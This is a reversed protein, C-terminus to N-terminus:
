GWGAEVRWALWAQRGLGVRALGKQAGATGVAGRQGGLAKCISSPSCPRRRSCHPEHGPASPGPRRVASRPWWLGRERPERLAWLGCRTSPPSPLGDGSLWLRLAHPSLPCSTRVRAGVAVLETVARLEGQFAVPVTGGQPGRHPTWPCAPTECLVQCLHVRRVGTPPDNAGPTPHSAPSFRPPGRDHPRPPPRPWRLISISDSRSGRRVGGPPRALM